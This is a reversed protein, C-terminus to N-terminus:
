DSNIPNKETIELNYSKEYSFERLYKGGPTSTGFRNMSMRNWDLGIYQQWGFYGAGEVVVGKAVANPLVKQEYAENKEDFKEVCAM